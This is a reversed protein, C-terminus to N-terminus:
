ALNIPEEDQKKDESDIVTGIESKITGESQVLTQTRSLWVM